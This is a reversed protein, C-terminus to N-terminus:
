PKAPELGHRRLVPASADSVFFDALQRALDGRASGARLGASFVTVVQLEGPLAGVFRIGKVPLLESVQQFAITAEGRAVIDGAPHGPASQRLKTEPVGWGKFVGALHVGSPGSSYAIAEADEVLRKVAGASSIDPVQAGARVALGIISRVLDMRGGAALLGEGVLGDIAAAAMVVIDPTAGARLRKAIEVGGVWSTDVAIGSEREFRPVLELWAERIALSSMAELRRTEM